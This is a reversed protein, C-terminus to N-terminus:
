LLLLVLLCCRCKNVSGPTDDNGCLLVPTTGGVDIMKGNPTRRNVVILQVVDKTTSTLMAAVLRRRRRRPSRCNERIQNVLPVRYKNNKKNNWRRRCRYWSVWDELLM